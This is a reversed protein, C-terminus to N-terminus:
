SFEACSSFNMDYGGFIMRAQTASYRQDRAGAKARGWPRKFIELLRNPSAM